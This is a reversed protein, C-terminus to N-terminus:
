GDLEKIVKEIMKGDGQAGLATIRLDTALEIRDLKHNFELYAFIQRPSLTM